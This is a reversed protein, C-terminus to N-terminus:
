CAHLLVVNRVTTLQIPFALSSPTQDHDRKKLVWDVLNSVAVETWGMSALSKVNYFGHNIFTADHGWLQHLLLGDGNHIELYIILGTAYVTM